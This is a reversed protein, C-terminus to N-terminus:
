LIDCQYPKDIYKQLLHTVNKKIKKRGNKRIPYSLSRREMRERSVENLERCLDNVTGNGPLNGSMCAHCSSAPRIACFNLPFDM